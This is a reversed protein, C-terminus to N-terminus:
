FKVSSIRKRELILAISARGEKTGKKKQGNARRLRQPSVTKEKRGRPPGKKESATSSTSV